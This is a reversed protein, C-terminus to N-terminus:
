EQTDASEAKNTEHQHVRRDVLRVRWLLTWYVRNMLDELILLYKVLLIHSTHHTILGM